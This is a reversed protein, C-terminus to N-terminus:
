LEGELKCSHKIEEMENELRILRKKIERFVQQIMEKQVDNLFFHDKIYEKETTEMSDILLRVQLVERIVTQIASAPLEIQTEVSNQAVINKKETKAVLLYSKENILISAGLRKVQYLDKPFVGPHRSREYKKLIKVGSKRKDPQLVFAEGQESHLTQFESIYILIQDKTHVGDVQYFFGSVIKLNDENDRNLTRKARLEDKLAQIRDNLLTLKVEEEMAATLALSFIRIVDSQQNPENWMCHIFLTMDTYRVSSSGNLFASTRVINLMKKWRRDSIYLKDYLNEKISKSNYDAITSRLKHILSFIGFSVEVRDRSYHWQALQEDTISLEPDVKPEENQTSAIMQNFLDPNSIGDVLYRIMFRDWLAELGEGLAPLENSAAIIGKLPLKQSTNGNRFIKENLVTLLANQIGPGAKWIEDLFVVSASPLYGETLREYADSNKLKSISVPGFIEDPTSFRSMLYEFSTGSCFALKLRRAIMSKAVGPPGLLFISEGAVASLLSLAVVHEKEYLGKNLLKLLLRIRDNKM